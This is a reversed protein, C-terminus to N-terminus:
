ITGMGDDGWKLSVVNLRPDCIWLSLDATAIRNQAHNALAWNVSRERLRVVLPVVFQSARSQV